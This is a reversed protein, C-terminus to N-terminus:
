LYEDGFLLNNGLYQIKEIPIVVGRDFVNRVEKVRVMSVKPEEPLSVSRMTNLTNRKFKFITRHVNFSISPIFGLDLFMVQLVLRYGTNRVNINVYSKKVQLGGILSLWDITDVIFARRKKPTLDMLLSLFKEPPWTSYLYAAQTLAEKKYAPLRQLNGHKLFGAFAAPLLDPYARKTGKTISCTGYLLYLHSIEKDTFNKVVTSSYATVYGPFSTPIGVKREFIFEHWTLTQPKPDIGPILGKIAKPLTWGLYYKAQGGAERILFFQRDAIIM